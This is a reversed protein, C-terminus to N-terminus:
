ARQYEKVTEVHVFDEVSSAVDQFVPSHYFAVENVPLLALENELVNTECAM